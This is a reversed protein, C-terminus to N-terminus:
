KIGSGTSPPKEGKYQGKPQYGGKNKNISLNNIKEYKGIIRDIQSEIENLEKKVQTADINIKFKYGNNLKDKGDM